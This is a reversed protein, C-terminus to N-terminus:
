TSIGLRTLAKTALEVGAVEEEWVIDDAGLSLLSDRDSMYKVRMVIPLDSRIQKVKRVLARMSVPDPITVVLLAATKLHAAEMVIMSASDGYIAHQKDAKLKQIAKYNLDVVVVILGSDQLAKTVASGTPGYGCVIVHDKIDQKAEDERERELIQRKSVHYRSVWKTHNMWSFSKKLSPILRLLYPTAVISLVANGLLLQYTGVSILSYKRAALLLLFGFEGVQALAIAIFVTIKAQYRFAFGIAMMITFKLLIIFILGLILAPMKHAFFACDLLMGVSVFFIASFADKLPLIESAAQNGFDSESVILGALFAGLALSLGLSSAISAIGFAISLVAISFLEKSHAHAVYRLFKPVIIRATSYLLVLYILMKSVALLIEHHGQSQGGALLPIFVLIPVSLVDQFLLIGTSVNGHTSGVEGREALLKLVVVTSSIGVTLGWIISEPLAWHFLPALLMAVAVTSLLLATGGLTAVYKVRLLQQISLEAGITFMLLGIGLEALIEVNEYPVLKLASPGILIGALIFGIITPQKLRLLISASILAATLVVVISVLPSASHM